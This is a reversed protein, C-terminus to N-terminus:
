YEYVLEHEYLIPRVVDTWIAYGEPAPNATDDVFLSATPPGGGPDLMPTAVDIYFLTDDIDTAAAILANAQAMREWDNWRTVSPMLSLFYIRTEPRAAHIKAVFALFDDLLEDPSLGGSIDSDGAYLVVARPEYANVIRDAYHVADQMWSQDIGRQIITLPAMDLRLTAWRRIASSGIAVIADRPPPASQDREEWAAITTEFREPDPRDARDCAAIAVMQTASACILLTHGLRMSLGHKIFRRRFTSSYRMGLPTTPCRWMGHKQHVIGPM